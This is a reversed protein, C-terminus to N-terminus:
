ALIATWIAVLGWAILSGILAITAWGLITGATRTAKDRRIIRNFERDNTM